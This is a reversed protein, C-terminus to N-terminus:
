VTYVPLTAERQAAAPPAWTDRGSGSSPMGQFREAWGGWAAAGGPTFWGQQLKLGRGGGVSSLSDRVEGLLRWINIWSRAPQKRPAGAGTYNLTM